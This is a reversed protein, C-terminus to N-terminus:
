RKSILFIGLIVLAAGTLREWTIEVEPYGLWGKQDYILSTIIQGGVIALALALAGLRPVLFISLTINFAGLLGGLWAWWPVSSMGAAGIWPENQLFALVGLVVTGFAFSVFAAQIASGMGLRLQANIGAQSVLGIGVLMAALVFLYHSFHAHM